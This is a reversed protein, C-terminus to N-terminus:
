EDEGEELGVGFSNMAHGVYQGGDHGNTWQFGCSDCEFRPRGDAATAQWYGRHHCRPCAPPRESRM